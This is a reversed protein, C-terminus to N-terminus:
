RFVTIFGDFEFVEDTIQDRARIYWVYVGDQVIEGKYTGDWSEEPDTATWIIEGYRNFVTLRFETLDFGEAYVRWNQNFPDGNPTFANPAYIFEDELVQVTRKSSGICGFKSTETLTVEYTGVEFRPYLVTVNNTNGAVNPIADPFSWSYVSELKRGAITFTLDTNFFDTPNQNAFFSPDPIPHIIVNKEISDLCGGDSEVFLEILFSGSESFTYTPNDVFSTDGEFVWRSDFSTIGSISSLNTFSIANGFCVSDSVYNAILRTPEIRNKLSDVCGNEATVVLTVEYVVTDSYSYTPNQENAMGGDGFDWNWSAFSVAGDISTLDIFNLEHNSCVLWTEGFSTVGTGELEFDPTPKALITVSANATDNCSADESVAILEVNYLGAAGYFHDPNEENSTLGDGFDWSWDVVASGGIISSTNTFASSVGFCIDDVDFSAEVITPSNYDIRRCGGSLDTYLATFMGEGYTIPMITESTEGILAIGDQYWQWTGGVEDISATLVIDETCWGGTAGISGFTETPLLTFEDFYLYSNDTDGDVGCSVGLAVANINVAPTFEIDVAQWAGDFTYTVNVDGLLDWSGIGEPCTTGTWPLDGCFPSGFLDIEITENMGSAYATNFRFTYSTGAFLPTTTCVGIYERYSGFFSFIGVLGEGGGPLPFEPAVSGDFGFESLGCVHYFDTTANSAQLWDNACSVMGEEIPCCSTDEFSANPILSASILSECDCDPDNLDVLGDADDDIANDCIEQGYGGIAIGILFIFAFLSKM